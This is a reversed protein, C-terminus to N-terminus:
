YALIPHVVVVVVVMILVVVTATPYFIHDGGLSSHLMDGHNVCRWNMCMTTTTYQRKHFSDNGYWGLLQWHINHQIIIQDRTTILLLLLILVDNNTDEQLNAEVQVEQVVNTTNPHQLPLMEEEEEEMPHWPDHSEHVLSHEIKLLLHVGVLLLLPLMARHHIFLCQMAAAALLLLRLVYLVSYVGVGREM